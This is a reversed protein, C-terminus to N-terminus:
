VALAKGAIFSRFRIEDGVEHIEPVAEKIIQSIVNHTVAIFSYIPFGNQEYSVRTQRRGNPPALPSDTFLVPYGSKSYGIVACFVSDM